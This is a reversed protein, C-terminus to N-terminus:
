TTMSLHALFHCLIHVNVVGCVLNGNKEWFATKSCHWKKDDLFGMSKTKLKLKEHPLLLKHM